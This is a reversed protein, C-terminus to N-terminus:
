PLWVPASTADLDVDSTVAVPAKPQAAAAADLWWLQFFGDSGHAALYILSRGDPSWTPQACLRSTVVRHPAGLAGTDADFTAVVVDAEQESPSCIMALHVGDPSLSPEACQDQPQTVARGQDGTSQQWWVQSAHSGDALLTNKVYLLAGNALPVPSADGGTYSHPTTEQQAGAPTVVALPASWIALDVQYGQKPEDYSFYLRGDAGARPDFVWHNDGIHDADQVAGENRTLQQEVAGSASLEFIDSWESGRRVALIGGGPLPAPDSWGDAGTLATFAGDRLLYLAGRQAVIVSGPLAVGATTASPDAAASAANSQHMALLRNVALALLAMLALRVLWPHRRM